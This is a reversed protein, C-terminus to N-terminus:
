KSMRSILHYFPEERTGKRNWCFVTEENTFWCFVTEENTFWCFVTEENTFWCFVTEENTFYNNSM